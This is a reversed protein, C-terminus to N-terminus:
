EARYGGAAASETLADLVVSQVFCLSCLYVKISDFIDVVNRLPMTGLISM